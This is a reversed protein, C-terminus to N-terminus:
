TSRKRRKAARRAAAVGSCTRTMPFPRVDHQRIWRAAQFQIPEILSLAGVFATIKPLGM